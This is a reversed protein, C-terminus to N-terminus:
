ANRMRGGVLRADLTISELGPKLLRSVPCAEKAQEAAAKFAGEDIGPVDGETALHINTITFGSDTRRMTVTATTRIADPKAGQGSLINSLAMSFCAAHAAAILEEPNSGAAQEFRSSFTIPADRLVGSETSAKGSGSRLDGAWSASARREIDPM